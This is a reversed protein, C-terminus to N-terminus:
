PSPVSLSPSGARRGTQSRSQRGREGTGTPQLPPLDHLNGDEIIIEVRHATEFAEALQCSMVDRDPVIMNLVDVLQRLPQAVGFRQHQDALPRLNAFGQQLAQRFQFQDALAADIGVDVDAGAGPEADDHRGALVGLRWGIGGSLQCPSQNKRRRARDRLLHRRQL